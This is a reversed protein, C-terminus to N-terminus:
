EESERASEARRDAIFEDVVSEGPRKLHGANGNMKKLDAMLSTVVIRGDEVRLVVKEGRQIGAAERVAAPILLRGDPGLTTQVSRRVQAFGSPSEFFESHNTM